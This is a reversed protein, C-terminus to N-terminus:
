HKPPPQEEGSVEHFEADIVAAENNADRPTGSKRALETGYQHLAATRAATSRVDEVIRGALEDMLNAMRGASQGVASGTDDQLRISVKSLALQDAPSFQKGKPIAHLVGRALADGMDVIRKRQSRVDDLFRDLRSEEDNPATTSKTNENIDKM